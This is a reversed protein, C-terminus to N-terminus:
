AEPKKGPVQKKKEPVLAQTDKRPPAVPAPTAKTSVQRAPAKPQETSVPAAAEAAKTPQATIPKKVPPKPAEEKKPSKAPVAPKQEEDKSLSLKKGKNQRPPTAPAKAALPPAEEVKKDDSIDTKSVFKSSSVM